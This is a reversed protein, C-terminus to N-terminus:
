KKFHYDIYSTAAKVSLMYTSNGARIYFEESNKNKTYYVPSKSPQINVICLTKGKFKKFKLEVLDRNEIGLSDSFVMTFFNEFGDLDKRKLNKVDMDIGIIDKTDSVGIILIGGRSNMFAALTKMVSTLLEKNVIGRRLDYQFTSKFEVFLSEGELILDRFDMKKLEVLRVDSQKKIQGELTNLYYVPEIIDKIKFVLKNNSDRIYITGYRFLQGLINMELSYSYNKNLKIKKKHTFSIFDIELPKIIYSSKVWLLFLTVLLIISISISLIIIFVGYEIFELFSIKNYFKEYDFILAPIYLFLNVLIELIIFRRIIIFPTQKIHILNQEM